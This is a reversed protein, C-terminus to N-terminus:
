LCNAVGYECFGDGGSDTFRLNMGTDRPLHVTEVVLGSPKGYFSGVPWNVFTDGHVSEVSFGTEGSFQDLQVTITIPTLDFTPAASATPSTSVTPPNTKPAGVSFVKSLTSTFVGSEDLILSGENAYIQFKKQCGNALGHINLSELERWEQASGGVFSKSDLKTQCCTAEHIEFLFHM